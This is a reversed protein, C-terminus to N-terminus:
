SALLASGGVSRCQRQPRRRIARSSPWSPPTLRRSPLSTIGTQWCPLWSLAQTARSPEEQSTPGGMPAPRRLAQRSKVASPLATRSSAPLAYECMVALTSGKGYLGIAQTTSTIRRPTQVNSGTPVTLSGTSLQQGMLLLTKKDNPLGASGSTWDTEVQVDPTYQPLITDFEIDASM